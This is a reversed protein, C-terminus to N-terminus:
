SLPKADIKCMSSLPEIGRIRLNIQASARSRRLKILLGNPFLLNRNIDRIPFSDNGKIKRAAKVLFQNNFTIM